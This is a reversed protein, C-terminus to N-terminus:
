EMMSCIGINTFRRADNAHRSSWTWIYDDYFVIRGIYNHYFNRNFSPNTQRTSKEFPAEVQCRQRTQNQEVEHHRPAM